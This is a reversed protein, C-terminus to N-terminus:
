RRMGTVFALLLARAELTGINQYFYRVAAPNGSRRRSEWVCRELTAQEICEHCVIALQRFRGDPLDIGGAFAPHRSPGPATHRVPRRCGICTAEPDFPATDAFLEQPGDGTAM